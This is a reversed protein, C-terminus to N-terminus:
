RFYAYGSMLLRATRSVSIYEIDTQDSSKSQATEVKMLGAPHGIIICNMNASLAECVITGNTLAATALSIAGSVAFAHHMRQMSFMRALINYNKGKIRNKVSSIYDVPPAIICIFPLHPSKATADKSNKVLGIMEAAVSRINELLDLSKLSIHEPLETGKLGIDIAKIFVAPNVSDVISVSYRKGSAHVIDVANGTPLLHGTVSGSPNYWIVKIRAGPMKVGDIKCDGNYLVGDDNCQVIEDIKKETNLNFMAIRRAPVMPEIIGSEIAFPGVATTLNGCNGTYDIFSRNIGVQGFLYEVDIGKKKSKQVIMIKSTHPTACGLGDVQASEGSAMIRMIIRDREFTDNPLDTKKFFVGKSTGGRMIMCQIKRM